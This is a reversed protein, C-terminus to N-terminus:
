VYGGDLRIVQGTLYAPSEALRLAFAAVEEPTGFRGAPIEEALASREEESFCRNMETDIVGCAIANVCIGSPALEKALARTFADMGGKSASYAVECSAGCTGWMSSINLICGQKKSLMLPIANSCCYFVSSLNTDIVRKWDAPTMDTLLGVYSIGANNVLIDLRGFEQRISHFMSEVFEPNGVDGICALCRVGFAKIEAELGALAEASKSCNIIVDYGHNAFTLAIARGIGRSAGTILIVKREM